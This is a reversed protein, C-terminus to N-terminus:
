ERGLYYKRYNGLCETDDDHSCEDFFICKDCGELIIDEMLREFGKKYKELEKQLYEVNHLKNKMM